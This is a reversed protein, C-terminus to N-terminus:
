TTLVARGAHGRTAIWALARAAERLPFETVDLRLRGDGIRQLLGQAADRGAAERRLMNLPLLAVDRQLLEPVDLQITTGGTYGVLVARGGAGVGRLAAALTSGGVTDILADARASLRDIPVTEVGPPLRAAQAADSLVACVSAGLEHALQLAVSGVAGTAGTILVREGERVKALDHL